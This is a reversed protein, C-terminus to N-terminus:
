SGEQPGKCKSEKIEVYVMKDVLAKDLAEDIPTNCTFGMIILILLILTISYHSM